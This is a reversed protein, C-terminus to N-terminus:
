ANMAIHLSGATHSSASFSPMSILGDIALGHKFGDGVRGRRRAVHDRAIIRQHSRVLTLAIKHLWRIDYVSVSKQASRDVVSLLLPSLPRGSTACFSDCSRCFGAKTLSVKASSVGM